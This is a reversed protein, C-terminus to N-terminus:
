NFIIDPNAIKIKEDSLTSVVSNLVIIRCPYPSNSLRPQSLLPFKAGTRDTIVSCIEGKKNKCSRGDAKYICSELVMLPLRSKQIVAKKSSTFVIDRMQPANLEPSLTIAYFNEKEFMSVAESNFVNLGAGGIIDIGATKCIEIHSINHILAYKAGKQKASCLLKVASPIESNFIVRPLEAIFNKPAFNEDAFKYLPILQAENITQLASPKSGRVPKDKIKENKVVNLNCTIIDTFKEFGNRRVSNLASATLFLGESLSIDIKEVSFNTNGTKCLQKVAFDKDIPRNNAKEPVIESIYECFIGDKNSICFKINEDSKIECSVSVPIKPLEYKQQKETEATIAKQSNKRIGYMSVNNKKYEETYYGDTFGSRSFLQSLFLLEGDTANRKEDLLTRYTKTVGYVYEPSKMRGEIKLSAIGSDCLDAIKTALCMDKLSLLEKPKQKDFSYKLRCPQACLGRNGSRKGICSSMLCMGSHSVCLAGHIFIETEYNNQKGHSTIDFIDKKGLERALVIRDFGLDKLYRAGSTNHCACQTSAHLCIEPLTDKLLGAFGLDQVIFADAGYCMAKYALSLGEKIERDTMLTNLTINSKVGYMRCLKIAEEFAKDDFNRANMRANFLSAGFYVEDAKASIAACLAEYSGCPALLKPLSM